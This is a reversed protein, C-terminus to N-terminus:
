ELLLNVEEALHQMSIICESLSATKAQQSFATVLGTTRPSSLPMVTGLEQSAQPDKRAPLM